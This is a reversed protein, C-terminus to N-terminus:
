RAKRKQRKTNIFTCQKTKPYQKHLVKLAIKGDKITNYYQPPVDTLTTRETKLSCSDLSPAQRIGLKCESTLKRKPDHRCGHTSM